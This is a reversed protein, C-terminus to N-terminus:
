FGWDIDESSEPPWGPDWEDNEPILRIGYRHSPDKSYETAGGVILAGHLSDPSVEEQYLLEGVSEGSIYVVKKNEEAVLKVLTPDVFSGHTEYLKAITGQRDGETVGVVTILKDM